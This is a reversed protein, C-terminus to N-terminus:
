HSNVILKIDEVKFGLERINAMIPKASEPLGADLLVHGRDSTILIASLGRTGVFYTSGYLRFPKQPANWEACSPCEKARRGASDTQAGLVAPLFALSALLLRPM